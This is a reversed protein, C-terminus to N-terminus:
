AHHCAESNKAWMAISLSMPLSDKHTGLIEPFQEQVKMDAHPIEKIAMYLLRLLRDNPESIHRSGHEWRSIIENGVKMLASLKKATFGMNKRLFRIEKGNLMTKKKIVMEGLLAHLEPIAPISVIQEGCDCRHVEIGELVINDLGSEKYQYSETKCEM